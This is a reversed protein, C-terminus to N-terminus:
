RSPSAPTVKVRDGSPTVTGDKVTIDVTTGSGGSGDSPTDESCATLSLAAVLLTVAIILTRRM